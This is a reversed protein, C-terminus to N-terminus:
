GENKEGLIFRQVFWWTVFFPWFVINACWVVFALLLLLDRHEQFTETDKHKKDVKKWDQHIGYTATIVGIIFYLIM